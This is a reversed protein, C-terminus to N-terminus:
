DSVPGSTGLLPSRLRSRLLGSGPQVVAVSCNAKAVAYQSVSGFLGAGRSHRARAGVVLLAARRSCAVLGPGAPDHLVELDPTVGYEDSLDAVSRALEDRRDATLACHVVRLPAQWRAAQNFGFDLADTSTKELDTGVVIGHDPSPHLPGHVVVTARGASSVAQGVSGLIAGSLVGLGRSGVVIIQATDALGTLLGAPEVPRVLTEIRVGPFEVAAQIAAADLARRGALRRATRRDRSSETATLESPPRGLAHALVLPRGEGSAQHAAWSIAAQDPLEEDIGVVVAGPPIRPRM